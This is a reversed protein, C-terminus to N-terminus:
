STFLIVLFTMTIGKSVTLIDNESNLNMLSSFILFKIKSEEQIM